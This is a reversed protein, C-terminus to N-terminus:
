RDGRREGLGREWALAHAVITDLQAYRPQWGFTEVIADNAAILADPDGARRGEMRREISLGSIREVADLVELVSFGRGYGCNLILSEAPAAILWHGLSTDGKVNLSISLLFDFDQLSRLPDGHGGAPVRGSALGGAITGFCFPTIISPAM